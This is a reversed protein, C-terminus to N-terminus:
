KKKDKKDFYDHRREIYMFRVADKRDASFILPRPQGAAEPQPGYALFKDAHPGHRPQLEFEIGEDGSILVRAGEASNRLSRPRLQGVIHFVWQASEGPKTSFGIPPDDAQRGYVLYHGRANKIFPASIQWGSQPDRNVLVARGGSDTLTTGNATLTGVFTSWNIYYGGTLAMVVAAAALVAFSWRHRGRM